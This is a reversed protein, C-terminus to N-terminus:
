GIIQIFQDCPVTVVSQAATSSVQVKQQCKVQRFATASLRIDDRSLCITSTM